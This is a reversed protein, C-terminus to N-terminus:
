YSRTYIIEYECQTKSACQGGNIRKWKFPKTQWLCERENLVKNAVHM